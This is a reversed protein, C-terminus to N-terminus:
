DGMFDKQNIMSNEVATDRIKAYGMTTSINSHGMARQIVGMNVGDEVLNTAFTRRMTHPTIEHIRDPDINANKALRNVKLRIAETSYKGGRPSPFIYESDGRESSNLYKNLINLAKEPLFLKRGKSGKGIISVKNDEINSVKLDVLESRRLGLYILASFIAKEELNKCSKFISVIEDESLFSLNKKTEKLKKVADLPSKKIYLNESLWNFFVKVSQIRVNISSAQLESNKLYAQYKRVDGATVREIDQFTKVNMFDFFNDLSIIYLTITHSSKDIQLISQYEDVQDIFNYKSKRTNDM